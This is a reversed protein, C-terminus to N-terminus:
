KKYKLKNKNKGTENKRCIIIKGKKKWFRVFNDSLFHLKAM